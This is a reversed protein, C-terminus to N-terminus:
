LLAKIRKIVEDYDPVIYFEEQNNILYIKANNASKERMIESICNINIFVDNNNITVIEIFKAMVM